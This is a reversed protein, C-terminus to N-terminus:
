RMDHRSLQEILLDFSDDKSDVLTDIWALSAGGDRLHQAARRIAAVLAQGGGFQRPKISLEQLYRTPFRHSFVTGSRGVLAEVELLLQLLDPHGAGSGYLLKVNLALQNLGISIRGPDLGVTLRDSISVQAAWFSPWLYGAAGLTASFEAWGGRVHDGYDGWANFDDLRRAQKEWVEVLASKPEGLERQTQSLAIFNSLEGPAEICSKRCLQLALTGVLSHPLSGNMLRRGLDILQGFGRRFGTAKGTSQVDEILKELSWEVRLGSEDGLAMEIMAKSISPHRAFFSRSSSGIFFERKMPVEVLARLDSEGVEIFRSVIDRPIGDIGGLDVAALVVMFEALSVDSAGPLNKALRSLLSVLRASMRDADFRMLLLGGMFAQRGESARTADLMGRAIKEVEGGVISAPRSSSCDVWNQAVVRADAAEVRNLQIPASVRFSTGWRSAVSLPWGLRDREGNWDVERSALLFHFHYNEEHLNLRSFRDIDGLLAEADDSAVLIKRHSARMADVADLTFRADGDNRWYIADFIDKQALIAVAQMLITSKGDGTAGGIRVLISRDEIQNVGFAELVKGMAPRPRLRPHCIDKWDPTLGDFYDGLDSRPKRKALLQSTIPVWGRLPNVRIPGDEDSGVYINGAAQYNVSNRGGSLEQGSEM